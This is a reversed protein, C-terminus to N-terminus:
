ESIGTWLPPPAPGTWSCACSMCSLFQPPPPLPPPLFPSSPLFTSPSLLMCLKYLLPVPPPHAPAPPPTTSSPRPPPHMHLEFLFPVTSRILNISPSLFSSLLLSIWCVCDHLQIRPTTALVFAVRQQVAALWGKWRSTMCHTVATRRRGRGGTREEAREQGQGEGREERKGSGEGGGGGEGCCRWNGAHFANFAMLHTVDPKAYFALAQRGSQRANGSLPPYGVRLQLAGVCCLCPVAPSLMLENGVHTPLDATGGKVLAPPIHAASHVWHNPLHPLPPAAHALPALPQFSM